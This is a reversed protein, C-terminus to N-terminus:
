YWSDVRVTYAGSASMHQVLDVAELPLSLYLVSEQASIMTHAARLFIIRIKSQENREPQVSGEDQTMLRSVPEM